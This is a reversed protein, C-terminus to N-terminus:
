VDCVKVAQILAKIPDGKPGYEHSVYGKYGTELIARMIAPYYIEQNEDLENRGPNGATHYHGIYDKYQRITAIIDGEMIQMHYIDYLLKMRESGVGKCVAVGWATRDCQYDPHNRKSNLLEMCITVKKQEAYGAVQKLGEVCIKIGEEDSVGEKDEKSKHRNGSMTIVNPWGAESALDINRKIQEILREHNEKRNWGSAISGAGACLSAVLGYKKLTPWDAPGTFDMARVGMKALMACKQEMSMNRLGVGCIGQQIRGNVVVKEIKELDFAPPAAAGLLAPAAAAAITGKLMTRRTLGWASESQRHTM